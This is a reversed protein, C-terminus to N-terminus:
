DTAWLQPGDTGDDAVFFVTNGVAVLQLPGSSASGPNIDRVLTTGSPTGDTSWLEYGNVGDTAAFLFRGNAVVGPRYDVRASPSRIPLPSDAPRRNIDKLLMTGAATGDSVFPEEGHVGDNAYFVVKGNGLDALSVVHADTTTANIDAVMTASVSLLMRRELSEAVLKVASTAIKELRRRRTKLP